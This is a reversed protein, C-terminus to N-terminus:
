QFSYSLECSWFVLELVYRLRRYEGETFTSELFMVINLTEHSNLQWGSQLGRLLSNLLM